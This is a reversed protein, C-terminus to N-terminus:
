AKISQKFIKIQEKNDQEAPLGAFSPLFHEFLFFTLLWENLLKPRNCVKIFSLHGM